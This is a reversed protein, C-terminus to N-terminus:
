LCGSLGRAGLLLFRDLQSRSVLIQRAGHDVYHLGRVDLVILKADGHEIRVLAAEVDFANVMNLEGSLAVAVIDGDHVSRWRLAFLERVGRDGDIATSRPGSIPPEDQARRM